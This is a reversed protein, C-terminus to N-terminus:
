HKIRACVLKKVFCYGFIKFNVVSIINVSVINHWRNRKM